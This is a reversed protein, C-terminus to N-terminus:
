IEILSFAENDGSGAHSHFQDGSGHYPRAICVKVAGPLLGLSLLHVFSPSHLEPTESSANPDDATRVSACCNSGRPDSASTLSQLPFFKLICDFSVAHTFPSENLVM